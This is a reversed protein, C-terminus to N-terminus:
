RFLGKVSGWISREVAVTSCQWPSDNWASSFTQHSPSSNDIVFTRIPISEWTSCGDKKYRYEVTRPVELGVPFSICARWLDPGIPDLPLNGIWSGLQPDSGTVCLYGQWELGATCLRFCVGKEQELNQGFGCGLPANNWSDMPLTVSATGDTPLTVARNSVSEWETCTNRKYKYEFYPDSGAPFTVTIRFLDGSVNGMTLSGWNGIPNQSGSVCPAWNAPTGSMCLTFTVAVANPLLDAAARVSTAAILAMVLLLPRRM